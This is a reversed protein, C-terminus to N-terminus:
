SVKSVPGPFRNGSPVDGQQGVNKRHVMGDPPIPLFTVGFSLLITGASFIAFGYRKISYTNQKVAPKLGTYEKQMRDTRYTILNERSPRCM